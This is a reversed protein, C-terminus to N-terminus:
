EKIFWVIYLNWTWQTSAKIIQYNLLNWNLKAIWFGNDIKNSALNWNQQCATMWNVNVAYNENRDIYSVTSCKFIISTAWAPITTLTSIDVNVASAMWAVWSWLWNILIPWSLISVKSWSNSEIASVRNNLNNINALIKNWSDSSLVWWTTAEITNVNTWVNDIAAYIIWGFLVVTLFSIWIISWKKIENIYYKM